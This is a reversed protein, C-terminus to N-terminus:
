MTQAFIVIQKCRYSLFFLICSQCSVHSEVTVSLYFIFYFFDATVTFLGVYLFLKLIEDEETESESHVCNSYTLTNEKM